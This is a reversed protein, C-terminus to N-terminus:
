TSVDDGDKQLSTETRESKGPFRVDGALTHHDRRRFDKLRGKVVNISSINAKQKDAGRHFVL